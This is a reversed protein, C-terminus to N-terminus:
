KDTNLNVSEKRGNANQLWHTKLKPQKIKEINNNRNSENNYSRNRQQSKRNNMQKLLTWLQKKFCKIIAAKNFDKDSLELMQTINTNADTSQNQENPNHDEPEKYTSHNKIIDQVNNTNYSM